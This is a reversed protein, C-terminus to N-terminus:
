LQSLERLEADSKPSDIIRLNELTGNWYWGGSRRQGLIVEVLEGFLVAAGFGSVVDGGNLSGSYRGDANISMAVRGPQFQGVSGLTLAPNSTNEGITDIRIDRNSDAQRIRMMNEGAADTLLAISNWSAGTASFPFINLAVTIGNNGFWKASQLGEIKADDAVRSVAADTTPIPTTWFSNEEQCFDVAITDGANALRLEVTPNESTQVSRVLTWEETISRTSYLFGGARIEIESVGNISRVWASFVRQKEPDTISQGVTAGDADAVVRCAGNESGDMGVEDKTVTANTKVWEAKTLDRSWLCRNTKPPEMLLGQSATGGTALSRNLRHQDAAMSIFRLTGGNEQLGAGISARSFTFLDSFTVRERMDSGQNLSM